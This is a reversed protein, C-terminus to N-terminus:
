KGVGYEKLKSICRKWQHITFYELYLRWKDVNFRNETNEQTSGKTHFYMVRYDHNKRSFEWVANITDAELIKNENYVIKFKDLIM